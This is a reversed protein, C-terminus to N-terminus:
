TSSDRSALIRADCNPLIGHRAGLSRAHPVRADRDQGVAPIEAPELDPIRGAPGHEREVARGSRSQLKGDVLRGCRSRPQPEDTGISGAVSQAREVGPASQDVPWTVDRLECVMETDITERHHTEGPSTGCAATHAANSPSRTVEAAITLPTPGSASGRAVSPMIRGFWISVASERRPDRTGRTTNSSMTIACRRQGARAKSRM